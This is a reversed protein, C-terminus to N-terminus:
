FASVNSQRCLDMYYSSHNEWSDHVFTLTPGSREPQSGFFQYKQVITKSFFRWLGKSQLSIRFSILGSYESSPSISFSFSWYKPWRIHLASQSSFVRISIFISPLLLLPHYLILHNSPIVLEISMLKLLSLSITFSLFAQHPVTWPTTFHWVPSFSQVVSTCAAINLISLWCLGVAYFVPHTHTHTHARARTIQKTNDLEKRGWISQPRSSEETWPVGALISSHTAMEEELPDEWALSQVPTGQMAPLNKVMQAVLSAGRSM